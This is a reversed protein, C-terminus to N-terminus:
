SPTKHSSSEKVVSKVCGKATITVLEDGDKLMEVDKLIKGNHTTMTFGRQLMLKPDLPKIRQEMLDLNHRQSMLTTKLAQQLSTNLNEIAALKVTKYTSFLLPIREAIRQTRLKETQLRYTLSNAIRSAADDLRTLVKVLNDILFDAAATPTKVHHWAVMDLISEDRDHGIGTIIPLPFNAVNEGLRLTDFGSLDATAGGGRIIVVVDFEEVVVNIADLATVVSGEVQEGQMIATFLQTKFKFGYPNDALHNCFDGYGAANASSVVAIRQAFMPLSLQRQMDFVGQAKLERIIAMRKMAMDGLTFTPDIDSIIWSFGYAEHFDPSVQLMVKMGPHPLQGTARVFANKIGTWRNKWCKASARAIPTASLEDKQVLEMYCHGRVERAESIEAELWFPGQLNDELTNRVLNNLQYLTMAQSSYNFDESLEGFLNMIKLNHPQSTM